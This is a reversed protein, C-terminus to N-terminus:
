ARGLSPHPSHGKPNGRAFQLPAGAARGWEGVHNVLHGVRDDVENAREAAEGRLLSSAEDEVVVGIVRGIHDSLNDTGCRGGYRHMEGDPPFPKSSEQLFVRVSQLLIM